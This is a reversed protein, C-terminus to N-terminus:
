NNSEILVPTLHLLQCDSGTRLQTLPHVFVLNQVVQDKRLLLFHLGSTWGYTLARSMSGYCHIAAPQATVLHSKRNTRQGTRGRHKSRNHWSRMNGGAGWRGNRRWAQSRLRGGTEWRNMVVRCYRESRHTAEAEPNLELFENCQQTRSHEQRDIGRNTYTLQRGTEPILSVRGRETEEGGASGATLWIEAWRNRVEDTLQRSRNTAQRTRLRKKAQKFKWGTERVNKLVTNPYLCPGM